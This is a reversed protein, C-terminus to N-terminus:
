RTPERHEEAADRPEFGLVARAHELDRYSWRNNSLAYFIDFRVTAPAAICLEIM